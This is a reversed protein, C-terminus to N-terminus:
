EKSAKARRLALVDDESEVGVFDPNLGLRALRDATEKSVPAANADPKNGSTVASESITPLADITQEFAELSVYRKTFWAAPDEDMGEFHKASVGRDIAKHALKTVNDRLSRNEEAELKIEAGKRSEESKVLAKNVRALENESAGLKAKTESLSLNATALDKNKEELRTELGATDGKATDQHLRLAKITEDKTAVEAELAAIKEESMTDIEKLDGATLCISFSAQQESTGADSAAIRFNIDTAPRNTLIGGTLAWGALEITATKLNRALEVSFGRWGGSEIESFLAPVLDLEGFLVGDRVSLANVFGPSFGGRDGYEAHPSVGIPVPGPFLAFNAVIQELDELSIKTKGKGGGATRENRIEVAPLLPIEVVGSGNDRRSLIKVEVPHSLNM